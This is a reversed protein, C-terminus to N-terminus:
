GGKVRTDVYRCAPLWTKGDSSFDVVFTLRDTGFGTGTGRVTYTKGDVKAKWTVLLKEGEVSMTGLGTFGTADIGYWTHTRAMPDYAFVDMGVVSGTVSGKGEVHRVVAFGGPYWEARANATWAEAPGFPNKACEGTSTWTGLFGALKQHEPGPRPPQYPPDAALAPSSAISLLMALLSIRM